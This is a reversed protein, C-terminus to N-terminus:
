MACRMVIGVTDTISQCTTDTVSSTSVSFCHWTVLYYHRTRCCHWTTACLTVTTSDSSSRHVHVSTCVSSLFWFRKQQVSVSTRTCTDHVTHICSLFRPELMCTCPWPADSSLSFIFIRYGTSNRASHLITTTTQTNVSEGSTFAYRDHSDWWVLLLIFIFNRDQESTEVLFREHSIEIKAVGRYWHIHSTMTARHLFVQM